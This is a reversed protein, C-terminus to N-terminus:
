ETRRNIFCILLFFTSFKMDDSKFLLINQNNIADYSIMLSKYLYYLVIIIYKYVIVIDYFSLKSISLVDKFLTSILDFILYIFENYYFSTVFRMINIYSIIKLKLLKNRSCKKMEKIVFEKM